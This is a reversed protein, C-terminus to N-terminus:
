GIIVNDDDDLLTTWKRQQPNQAQGVPPVSNPPPTATSDIDKYELKIENSLITFDVPKIMGDIDRQKIQRYDMDLYKMRALYIISLIEYKRENFDYYKSLNTQTKIIEQPKLIIYEEMVNTGSFFSSYPKFTLNPSTYWPNLHFIHNKLKDGGLKNKDVLVNKNSTNTFTLLAVLEKGAKKIELLALIPSEVSITDARRKINIEENDKTKMNNKTTQALCNKNYSFLLIISAIYIIKKIM